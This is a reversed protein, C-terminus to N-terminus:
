HKQVAGLCQLLLPLEDTGISHFLRTNSLTINM